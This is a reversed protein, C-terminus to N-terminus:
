RYTDSAPVISPFNYGICLLKKGNRRVGGIVGEVKELFREQLQEENEKWYDPHHFICLGDKIAPESCKFAIYGKSEFDWYLGNHKFKCEEFQM